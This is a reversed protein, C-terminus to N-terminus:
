HGNSLVKLKFPNIVKAKECDAVQMKEVTDNNPHFDYWLAIILKTSLLVALLQLRNHMKNESYSICRSHM